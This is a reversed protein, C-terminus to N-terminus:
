KSNRSNFAAINSKIQKDVDYILCICLETCFNAASVASHSYWLLNVSPALSALLPAVGTTHKYLFATVHPALNLCHVTAPTSDSV